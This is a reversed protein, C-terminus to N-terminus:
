STVRGWATLTELAERTLWGCWDSKAKGWAGADVFAWDWFPTWGGDDQQGAILTAVAADIRDALLDAVLSGPRPALELVPAHEDNPDHAAVSSRVLAALPGRVKAPAAPTEALRIACKLDYAGEIPAGLALTRLMGAEAAEILGAPAIASCGYLLGLIEATPNYAFGNWNEALDASWVWWPAHPALDVDKGVIPWVGGERDLARDLWGIVGRVMPHDGPAGVRALLRFGISTAIATSAPSQTDPELGHGFGGDPNQFVALATLVDGASGRMLMIDLPRGEREVFARAAAFLEASLVQM